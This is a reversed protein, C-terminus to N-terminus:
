PWSYGVSIGFYGFKQETNDETAEVTTSAIYAGFDWEESYQHNVTVSLTSSEVQPDPADTTKSMDGSLSWKENLIFSGQLGVTEKPLSTLTDYFATGFVRVSSPAGLRQLQTDLNQDYDYQSGYFSVILWDTADLALSYSLSKQDLALKNASPGSRGQEIRNRGLGISWAIPLDEGFESGLKVEIKRSTLNDETKTSTALNLETYIASYFNWNNGWIFQRSSDVDGTASDQIKARSTIFGVSTSWKVDEATPEQQYQYNLELESDSKSGTGAVEFRQNAWTIQSIVAAIVFTTKKM